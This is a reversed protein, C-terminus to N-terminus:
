LPLNRELVATLRRTRAADKNKLAYYLEDVVWRIYHARARELFRVDKPGRYRRYVNAAFTEGYEFLFTFDFAPDGIRADGFDIVGAIRGHIVFIHEDRFDAHIFTKKPIPACGYAHFFFTDIRALLAKPIGHAIIRRRASKYRERFATLRLAGRPARVPSPRSLTHLITLFAAMQEAVAGKEQPALRGFAATTLIRGPILPYGGFAERRAVWEYRPVAFPLKKRTLLKLLALEKGLTKKYTRNRPFRFVSREDLILAAHDEGTKALRTKKFALGPFEKRIREALIQETANNM